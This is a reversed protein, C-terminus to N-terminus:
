VLKETSGQQQFNRSRFLNQFNSKLFQKRKKPLCAALDKEPGPLHKVKAYYGQTSLFLAIRLAHEASDRDLVVLINLEKTDEILLALHLLTSQNPQMGMLAYSLYGEGAAALADMPGEVVVIGRPAQSPSVKILAEHRPGKPSQYRIFAKGSVDRAQWYVHGAKHTVAPIVIRPYTDQADSSVYWGNKVALDKDLNRENLYCLAKVCHVGDVSQAPFETCMPHANPKREESEHWYM